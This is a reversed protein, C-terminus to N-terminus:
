AESLRSPVCGIASRASWRAPTTSGSAVTLPASAVDIAAGDSAAESLSGASAEWRAECRPGDSRTAIPEEWSM